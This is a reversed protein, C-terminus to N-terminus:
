AIAVWIPVEALKDPNAMDLGDAELGCSLSTNIARGPFHVNVTIVM